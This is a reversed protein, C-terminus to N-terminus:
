MLLGDLIQSRDGRVPMANPAPDAIAWWATPAALLMINPFLGAGAAGATSAAAAGTAWLGHSISLVDKFM